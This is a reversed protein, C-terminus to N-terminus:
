PTPSATRSPTASALSAPPTPTITATSTVTLFPTSSPTASAEFPTATATAPGPTPTPPLIGGVLLECAIELDGAAAVPFDPLESLVLDLRALWPNLGAREEEPLRERLSLLVDRATQAGTRALGFNNQALNFQARTLLNVAKLIEVQRLMDVVQAQPANLTQQFGDVRTAEYSQFQQYGMLEGKLKELEVLGSELSTQTLRLSEQGSQLGAQQEAVVVREVELQNVRAQLGQLAENLGSQNSANQTEMAQLRASTDRVPLVLERYALPVAYYVGLSVVGLIVLIVLLRLVGRGFARAAAGFRRAVPMGGTPPTETGM